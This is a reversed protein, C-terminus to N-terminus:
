VTYFGIWFYASSALCGLCWMMASLYFSASLSRKALAVYAVLWSLMAPVFALPAFSLLYAPSVHTRASPISYTAWLFGIYFAAFTGAFLVLLYIYKGTRNELNTM